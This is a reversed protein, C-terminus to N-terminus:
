RSVGIREKYVDNLEAWRAMGDGAPKGDLKRAFADLISHWGALTSSRPEWGDPLDPHAAKFEATKEPTMVDFRHTLVLKTGSDAPTLEWRVTGGEWSKGSWGFEIVRPPDLDVITSEIEHDNFSVRGGKRLEITGDESLWGSLKDNSTLHDWVKDLPHELDREFTLTVQDDTADYSGFETM